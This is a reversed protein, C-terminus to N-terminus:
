KVKETRAARNTEQSDTDISKKGISDEERKKQQSKM